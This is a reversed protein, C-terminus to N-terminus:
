VYSETIPILLQKYQKVRNEVAQEWHERDGGAFLISRSSSVLSIGTQGELASVLDEIKGGQNGIGPILLPADTHYRTVSTLQGARTAGVVMGLTTRSETQRERLGNAIYAAMSPFESFPQELFDAAGPNSTLALVYLAKSPYGFFPELTEFGMLPNLTIADIDWHDFFAKKYNEATTGIDGRKADAIIIKDDPIANLVRDFVRLGEEGLAEFFALNPKYAACHPTTVEIVRELFRVVRENRDPIQRNVSEPFLHLHPDLGVCLCSHSASVANRLKDPYKMM